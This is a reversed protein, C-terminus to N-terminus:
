DTRHVEVYALFALWPRPSLAVVAGERNKSDRIHIMGPTAAVEVCNGGGSGSYSSTYWKLEGGLETAQM